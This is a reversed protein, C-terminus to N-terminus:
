RGVNIQSKMLNLYEITKDYRFKAINAEPYGSRLIGYHDIVTNTVKFTELPM